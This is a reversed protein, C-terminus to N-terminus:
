AVPELARPLEGERLVAATGDEFHIVPAEDLPIDAPLENRCVEDYDEWPAVYERPFPEHVLGRIPHWRPVRLWEARLSTYVREAKLRERMGEQQMVRTPLSREILERMKEPTSRYHKPFSVVVVGIAALRASWDAEGTELEATLAPAVVAIVDELALPPIEANAKPKALQRRAIGSAEGMTRAHERRQEETM